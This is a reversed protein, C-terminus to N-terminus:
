AFIKMKVMIFVAVMAIFEWAVTPPGWRSLRMRDVPILHARLQILSAALALLIYLTETYTRSLFWGTTLFAVFAARMAYVAGIYTQDDPTKVQIGTLIGLLSLTVFLLALWFFFGFLGV